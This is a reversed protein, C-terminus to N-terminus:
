KQVGSQVKQVFDQRDKLNPYLITAIENIIKLEKDAFPDPFKNRGNAVYFLYEVFLSNVKKIKELEEERQKKLDELLAEKQNIGKLALEIKNKNIELYTNQEKLRNETKDLMNQAQMRVKDASTLLSDGQATVSLTRKSLKSIEKTQVDIENELLGQKKKLSEQKEDIEIRKDEIKYVLDNVEDRKNYIGERLNELKFGFYTVLVIIAIAIPWVVWRIITLVSQITKNLNKFIEEQSLSKVTEPTTGSVKGSQVPQQMFESTQENIPESM